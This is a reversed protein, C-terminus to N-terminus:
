DDATWFAGGVATGGGGGGGPRATERPTFAPSRDPSVERPIARAAREPTWYALVEARTQGANAPPAASSGGVVVLVIATATVAALM